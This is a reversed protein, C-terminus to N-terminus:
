LTYLLTELISALSQPTTKIDVRKGKSQLVEEILHDYNTTWYTDIPLESLIDLSKNKRSNSVFENLILQNLQSRSSKENCYYQAVAVLDQEIEVDLSIDSAIERLLERWNVYGSSRSLGAGAFIAAYGAQIAKAFKRQFQEISVM